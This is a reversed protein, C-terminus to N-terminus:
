KVEAIVRWSWPCWRRGPLFAGGVEALYSTAADCVAPSFFSEV